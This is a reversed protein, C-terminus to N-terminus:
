IIFDKGKKWYNYGRRTFKVNPYYAKNNSACQKPTRNHYAEKEKLLDRIKNSTTDVHEQKAERNDVEVSWARFAFLM